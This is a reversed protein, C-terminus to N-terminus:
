DGILSYDFYNDYDPKFINIVPQTWVKEYIPEGAYDVEGTDWSVVARVYKESGNLTYEAVNGTVTKVVTGNEKMFKTVATASGTEISYTGNSFAVSTISTDVNSSAYFNGSALNKLIEFRNNNDAFVKVCGRKFIGNSALGSHVDSIALAWTVLGNDIMHEFAYDSSKGTPYTVYDPAGDGRERHYETLGDWVECFRIRGRLKDIAEPKVYTSTWYPHAISVMSGSSKLEDPINKLPVFDQWGDTAELNYTVIHKIKEYLGDKDDTGGYFPVEASDCLWTLGEPMDADDVHTIPFYGYNTLTVFDYGATRYNQMTEIHSATDYLEPGTESQNWGEDHCHLQGVLVRSGGNKYPNYCRRILGNAYYTDNYKLQEVESVFTEMSSEINEVEQELSKIDDAVAAKTKIYAGTELFEPVTFDDTTVLNYVTVRVTATNEKLAKLQAGTLDVGLKGLNSRGIYSDSTYSFLYAQYGTPIHLMSIDDVNIMNTRVSKTTNAVEGTEMNVSGQRYEDYTYSLTENIEIIDSNIDTIDDSLETINQTLTEIRDTQIYSGTALFEPVTFDDTMVLNYVTVRIATTNAKYAKLEAGSLDVGVKGLNSRGLYEGDSDYSFLYAQYGDPIHLKIVDDATILDTRVSKTTDAVAGTEMNVSGQHYSDYTFTLTSNIDSIDSQIDDIDSSLAAVEGEIVDIKGTKLYAGTALFDNVPFNDTTNLNYVSTRIKSTGLKYAALETGGLNVGLKGLNTRGLYTGDSAYSYLYTQYGSPIYLKIIKSTDIQETIVSKTSATVEGTEMNVSGNSYQDYSVSINNVVASISNQLTLNESDLREKLTQYTTGDEAVRAQAVETDASGTGAAQAIQDIQAQLSATAAAIATDTAFHTVADALSSYGEVAVDIAEVVPFDLGNKPKLTDIVYVPM